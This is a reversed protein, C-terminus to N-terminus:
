NVNLMVTTSHVDAGSKGTVLVNYNGRPTNGSTSVTMVSTAGNEGPTVSSPSFSCAAKSSLGSCSLAVSSSFPGGLPNVKITFKVSQGHKVTASSPSAVISFDVGTGTLGATQPSGSANDTINLTGSQPGGGSPRFSISVACTAKPSLSSPCNNSQVFPGSISIGSITLGTNGTSTITITQAASTTGVFQAAFSLSAPSLSLSPQATLGYGSLSASLSSNTVGDSGSVSLGGSRPGTTSPSFSVSYTCSSGGLLGAAACNNGQSFDGTIQVNSFQFCTNGANTLTVPQANSTTGIVQNGFSLSNTSFSVNAARQLEYAGMDITGVCDNYGDIFRPKGDYDTQPLNPASNTGADIVSSTPQLHFDSAVNVFFPDSSINGTQGTM